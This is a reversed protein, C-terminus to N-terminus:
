PLSQAELRLRVRAASVAFWGILAYSLLPILFATHLGAIDAVRGMLPPLLAGGIIAM